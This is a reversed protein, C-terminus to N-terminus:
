SAIAELVDLRAARRGPLVSAAVGALAAILTVVGLTSVPIVLTDIGQDSLAHVISWGFFVGVALGLGTGFLAIIIAEFRM